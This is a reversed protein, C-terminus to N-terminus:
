GNYFNNTKIIICKNESMGSNVAEGGIKATTRHEWFNANRELSEKIGAGAFKQTVGGAQRSANWVEIALPRAPLLLNL